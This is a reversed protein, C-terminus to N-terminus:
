ARLRLLVDARVAADALAADERLAEEREEVLPRPLPDDRDRRLEDEERRGPRERDVVEGAPRALREDRERERLRQPGDTRDVDVQEVDARNRPSRPPRKAAVRQAPERLSARLLPDTRPLLRVPRPSADLRRPHPP